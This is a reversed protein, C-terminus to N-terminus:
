QVARHHTALQAPHVAGALGGVIDEIRQTVPEGSGVEVFLEVLKLGVWPRTAM